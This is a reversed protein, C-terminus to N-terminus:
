LDCSLSLPLSLSLSLSLFLSFSFLPLLLPVFCALCYLVFVGLGALMHNYGLCVVCGFSLCIQSRLCFRVSGVVPRFCSRGCWLPLSRVCAVWWWCARRWFGDSFFPLVLFLLMPYLNVGLLLAVVLVCCVCAAALCLCYSTSPLVGRAVLSMSLLGCSIFGFSFGFSASPVLCLCLCLCRSM